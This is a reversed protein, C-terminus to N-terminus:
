EGKRKGELDKSLVGMGWVMNRKGGVVGFWVVDGECTVGCNYM